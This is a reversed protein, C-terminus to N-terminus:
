YNNQEKNKRFFIMSWRDGTFDRTSHYLKSGNFKIPRHRIHYMWDEVQLNGNNYDGLGVIISEGVNRSDIHKQCQANHNIMVCDYKFDPDIKHIMNKCEQWLEPYKKNYKSERFKDKKVFFEKTIGLCLSEALNGYSIMRKGIKNGNEDLLNGGRDSNRRKLVEDDIGFVAPRDRCRPLKEPLLSEIKGWDYEVNNYMKVGEM